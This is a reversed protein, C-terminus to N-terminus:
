SLFENPLVYDAHRELFGSLGAHSGKFRKRRTLISGIVSTRTCPGKIEVINELGRTKYLGDGAVEKVVDSDKVESAYAM